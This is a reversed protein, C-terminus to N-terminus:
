VITDSKSGGSGKVLSASDRRQSEQEGELVVVEERVEVETLQINPSTALHTAGFSRWRLSSIDKRPTMDSTTTGEASGSLFQRLEDRTLLTDLLTNTYIRGIPIAFMGYLNTDPYKLFTLLDGMSFIGAFLGTQIAGRILRNLVTDTKQFGTRSRFLIFALTITILMDVGVQMGLWASVLNSISPLEVLVAIIWAKIGCAMGLAFSPIALLLIIGYIIWSHTLRMIRYGLFMQTTLAALATAIPTFTYPWLAVTLADPANYNTVCYVYLMYIVSISHVTDVLFLIIVMVKLLIPDNFKTRWYTLFQFTVLGYLYTNFVIGILLTGITKDFEGM